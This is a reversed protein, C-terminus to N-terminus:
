KKTNQDARKKLTATTLQSIYVTPKAGGLVVFSKPLETSVNVVRNEKQALALYERTRASLTTKDLDFLGILEGTHILTEQGLHLYM